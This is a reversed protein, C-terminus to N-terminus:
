HKRNKGLGYAGGSVVQTRNFFDNSSGREERTPNKTEAKAKSIYDRREKLDWSHVKKFHRDTNKHAVPM